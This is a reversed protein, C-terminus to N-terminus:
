LDLLKYKSWFIIEGGDNLIKKAIKTLIELEKPFVSPDEYFIDFYITDFTENTNEMYHLIRDHVINFKSHKPLYRMTLDIVEQAREVITISDVKSDDMLMVADYGIGLGAMLVKGKSKKSTSANYANIEFGKNMMWTMPIDENISKDFLYMSKDSEQKQYKFNGLEGELFIEYLEDWNM